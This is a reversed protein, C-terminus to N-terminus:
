PSGGEQQQGAWCVCVMRASRSSLGDKVMDFLNFAGFECSRFLAGLPIVRRLDDRGSVLILSLLVPQCPPTSLSFASRRPAVSGCGLLDWIGNTFSSLLFM